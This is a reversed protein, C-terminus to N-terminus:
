VVYIMHYLFLSVPIFMIFQDLKSRSLSLYWAIVDRMYDPIFYFTIVLNSIFHRTTVGSVYYTIIICTQYIINYCNYFINLISNM